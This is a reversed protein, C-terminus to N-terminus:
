ATSAIFSFSHSLATYRQALLELIAKCELFVECNKDEAFTIVEKKQLQLSQLRSSSELGRHEQRGVRPQKETTLVSVLPNPGLQVRHNEM